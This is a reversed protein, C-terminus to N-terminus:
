CIGFLPLGCELEIIAAKDNFSGRVKGVCDTDQDVAAVEPITLGGSAPRKGEDLARGSVRFM